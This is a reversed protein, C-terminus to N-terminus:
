KKELKEKYININREFVNRGRWSCSSNKYKENWEKNSLHKYDKVKIFEIGTPLFNTTKEVNKNHPCVNSCIDCGYICNNFEEKEKQHEVNMKYNKLDVKVGVYDATKSKFDCNPCSVKGIHHYRIFDYKLASHCKPCIRFDNVINTESTEYPQKLISYYIAKKDDGLMSSLPDDANLILTAEKPIYDNIKNYVFYPHANRHMSDRFLNTVIIYNPKVLPFIQNSTIEDTELVAVDVNKRTNFITVGDLLCRAVGARMNAGWDNYIVTKGDKILLESVLNSVTTKGNTGTVCIVLEPKKIKELFNDCIKHALIGPRDDQRNGMLKYIFTLLKSSILALYFRIM